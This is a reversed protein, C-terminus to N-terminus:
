VNSSLKIKSRDVLWDKIAFVAMEWGMLLTIFGLSVNLTFMETFGHYEFIHIVPDTSEMFILGGCLLSFSTILETIPRSPQTLNKTPAPALIFIVYTLFRFVCGIIFLNGWQVHIATSLRSAQEHSSMLVGTWYITLVPFPNPSFGPSAKILSRNLNRSQSLQYDTVAKNYRWNGLKIETLVGCFGCGIFIFAISVHQLDKATWEGGPDALHELFINTCGYFLILSSELFEMTMCGKFQWKSDFTSLKKSNFVFKYNWSWGKNQFAGCYRALTLIGFSFFVGGKIFHALLNFVNKGKGLVLFTAVMTPLYVLFYFFHGWNLFNFMYISSQGFVKIISKVIKFDVIAKLFGLSPAAQMMSNLSTKLHLNFDQLEFLGSDASHGTDFSEKITTNGTDFSAPSHLFSSSSVHDEDEESSVRFYDYGGDSNLYKYGKSIIAVVWHVITSFFLIWSMTNYANHPYLDGISNIFISYNLLSVLTVATHVSLLILYARHNVNNLILCIPYIFVFSVLLTAIHIYLSSRHNSDVNFYSTTNYNEWFLKEEPLLHTELIPKGHEHLKVHPTPSLKTVDVAVTADASDATTPHTEPPMVMDKKANFHSLQPHVGTAAVCLLLFGLFLM